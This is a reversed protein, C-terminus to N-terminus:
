VPPHSHLHNKGRPCCQFETQKKSPYNVNLHKLLGVNVVSHGKRDKSLCWLGQRTMGFCFLGVTLTCLPKLTLLNAQSREGGAVLGLVDAGARQHGDFLHTHTNTNTYLESPLDSKYKQVQM